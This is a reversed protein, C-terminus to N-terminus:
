TIQARNSQLRVGRPPPAVARAPRSFAAESLVKAYKAATVDWSMGRGYARTRAEMEAKLSSHSLVATVERALAASSRFAALRGRGDSLLEAAYLFPTSVVAKGFFVARAMTGSTIQDAGVYPTVYVDTAELYAALEDDSLFKDVFRVHDQVGLALATRRLEERYSEGDHKKVIPHTQGLICCVANPRKKVIEPMAAIMYEMGKGRSLLGFSSIVERNQLGLLRKAAFEGLPTFSPVGHPIVKLNAFQIGYDSRLIDVGMKAMVVCAFSKGVIARTIKRPLEPCRPMVTHLTTVIPKRCAAYFDVINKGWAGSFIGFEHQVCVVDYGSRNVKEAFTAYANTHVHDIRYVVDQGYEIDDDDTLDIAAVRPTIWGIEKKITATLDRTFTAIGCAQPPYTSVFLAKLTRKM